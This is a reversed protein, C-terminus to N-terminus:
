NVTETADLVLDSEVEEAAVLQEVTGSNFADLLAAVSRIDAGVPYVPAQTFSPTSCTQASTPACLATLIAALVLIVVSIHKMQFERAIELRQLIELKGSVVAHM